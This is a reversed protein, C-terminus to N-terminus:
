DQSKFTLGLAEIAFSEFNEESVKLHIIEKALKDNLIDLVNLNVAPGALYIRCEQDGTLPSQILSKEIQKYRRMCTETINDAQGNIEDIYTQYYKGNIYVHASLTFKDAVLVIQNEPGDVSHLQELYNLISDIDQKMGSLECECALALENLKDLTDKKVAIFLVEKYTECYLEADKKIVKYDAIEGQLYNSLEWKVQAGILESDAEIPLAVRKPYTFNVPLSIYLAAQDIDKEQKHLNIMQAIQDLNSKSFLTDYSFLFPYEISNLSILETRGQNRLSHAINLTTNSFSIGLINNM